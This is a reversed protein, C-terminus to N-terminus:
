TQRTAINRYLEAENIMEAMTRDKRENDSPVHLKTVFRSENLSENGSNNNNSNTCGKPEWIELADYIDDIKTFDNPQRPLIHVHVHSVSQGAYRGDQVAVNCSLPEQNSDNNGYQYRLISQVIRVTRWLDDYEESSLQYLLQKISNCPIVLVHGPVIPRLNVFAVSLPTRYFICEERIFFKGFQAGHNATNNSNNSHVMSTITSSIPCDIPQNTISHTDQVENNDVVVDETSNTMEANFKHRMTASRRDAINKNNFFYHSM